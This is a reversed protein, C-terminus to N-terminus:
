QHYSETLFSARVPGTVAAIEAYEHIYGRFILHQHDITSQQSQVYRMVRKALLWVLEARLETEHLEDVARVKPM